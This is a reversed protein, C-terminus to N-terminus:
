DIWQNCAECRQRHEPVTQFLSGEEARRKVLGNLKKKGAYVWRKLQAPVSHYQSQNLKKRLTSVKLNGGGLNFTFSCLAAFQNDNLPVTIYREVARIAKAMDSKLIQEGKEKNITEHKLHQEHKLIVHGYGITLKGAPCIYAKARFGEHQKVLDLGAKNIQRM